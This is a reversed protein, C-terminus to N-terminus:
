VAVFYVIIIHGGTVLCLLCVSLYARQGLWPVMWQSGGGITDLSAVCDFCLTWERFAVSYRGFEVVPTASRHCPLPRVTGAPVWEVIGQGQNSERLWSTKSGHLAGFALLTIYLPFLLTFSLYMYSCACSLKLSLDHMIAFIVPTLLLPHILSREITHLVIVNKM